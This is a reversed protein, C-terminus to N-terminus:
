FRLFLCPTLRSIGPHPSTSAPLSEREIKELRRESSQRQVPKKWMADSMTRTMRWALQADGRRWGDGTLFIGSIASWMFFCLFKRWEKTRLTGEGQGFIISLIKKERRLHLLLDCIFLNIYFTSDTENLSYGIWYENPHYQMHLTNIWAGQPVFFFPTILWLM